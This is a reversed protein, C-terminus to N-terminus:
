LKMPTDVSNNGEIFISDASNQVVKMMSEQIQQAITVRDLPCTLPEVVPADNPEEAAMKSVYDKQWFLCLVLEIGLFPSKATTGTNRTSRSVKPNKKKQHQPM